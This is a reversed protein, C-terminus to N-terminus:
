GSESIRSDMNFANWLYVATERGLIKVMQTFVMTQAELESM